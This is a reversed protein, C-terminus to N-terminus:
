RSTTIPRCQLLYLNERHFACELDVPWGMTAELKLALRGLSEVHQPTLCARQRLTRLVPVDRTGAEGDPVTMTAKEGIVTRMISLDSRRLIWTDPNTTGSVLSEGIGYNANILVGDASGAPHRSFVVAAADAPVMEQVLVALGGPALGRHARYELVRAEEASSWCRTIAQLLAEVGRVNLCTHFLGAFSAEAGDEDVGSSRVALVPLSAQCRESLAAYALRVASVFAEPMGEPTAIPNDQRLFPAWAAHAEITLCFGPPVLASSALRSLNASKGGVLAADLCSQDGLWAILM